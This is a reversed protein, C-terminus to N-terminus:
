ADIHDRQRRERRGRRLGPLLQSSTGDFRIREERRREGHRRRTVQLAARLRIQDTHEVARLQDERHRDAPVLTPTPQAERDDGGPTVGVAEETRRQDHAVITDLGDPSEHEVRQGLTMRLSSYEDELQQWRVPRQQSHQLPRCVPAADGAVLLVVAGRELSARETAVGCRQAATAAPLELPARTLHFGDGTRRERGNVDGAVAPRDLGEQSELNGAPSAPGPANPDWAPEVANASSAARHRSSRL